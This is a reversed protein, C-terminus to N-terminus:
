VFPIDFSQLFRSTDRAFRVLFGSMRFPKPLMEKTDPHFVADIIKKAQWLEADDFRHNSTSKSDGQNPLSEMQRQQRRHTEFDKLLGVADDIDQRSCLLTRPDVVDLMKRFRGYYTAQDYRESLASVFFPVSVDVVSSASTAKVTAVQEGEPAHTTSPVTM